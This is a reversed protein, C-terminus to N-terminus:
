DYFITPFNGLLWVNRYSRYSVHFLEIEFYKLEFKPLYAPHRDHWKNKNTFSSLQCVNKSGSSCYSHCAGIEAYKLKFKSIYTQLGDHWKKKTPFVILIGYMKPILVIDISWNSKLIYLIGVNFFKM